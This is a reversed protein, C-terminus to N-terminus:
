VVSKRDTLVIHWDRHATRNREDRLHEEVGQFEALLDRIEDVERKGALNISLDSYAGGTRRLAIMQGAYGQWHLLNGHLSELRTQQPSSDAVLLYLKRYESDIEKSAEQYPQLFMDNGTVLYGREGTEMDVTLKLLRRTQGIVQDTHVVWQMTDNLDYAAWLAAGALILTAMFPVVVTWRLLTRFRTQDLTPLRSEHRKASFKRDIPVAESSVASSKKGRLSEFLDLFRLREASVTGALEGAQEVKGCENLVAAEVKDVARREISRHFLGTVISVTVGSICFIVLGVIDSTSHVTFQEVPELVFYAAMLASLTTALIGEWVGGLVAALFVVPYFTAYAPLTISQEALAVRLLLALIVAAMVSLQRAIWGRIRAIM